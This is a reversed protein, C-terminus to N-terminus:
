DEFFVPDYVCPSNPRVYASCGFSQTSNLDRITMKHNLRFTDLFHLRNKLLCAFILVGGWGSVRVGVLALSNEIERHAASRGANGAHVRTAVENADLTVIFIELDCGFANLFGFIFLQQENSV